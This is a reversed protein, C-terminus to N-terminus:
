KAVIRPEFSYRVYTALGTLSFHQSFADHKRHWALGLVSEVGRSNGTQQQLEM